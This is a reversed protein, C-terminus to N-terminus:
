TATKSCASLRSGTCMPACVMASSGHEHQRATAARLQTPCGGLGDFRFIVSLSGTILPILFYHQERALTMRMRM